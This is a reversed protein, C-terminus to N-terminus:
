DCSPNQRQSSSSTVSKSCSSGLSNVKFPIFWIKVNLEHTHNLWLGVIVIFWRLEDRFLGDLHMLILVWDFTPALKSWMAEANWKRPPRTTDASRCSHREQLGRPPSLLAGVSAVRRDHTKGCLSSKHRSDFESSTGTLDPLKSVASVFCFFFFVRCTHGSLTARVRAPLCRCAASWRCIVCSRRLRLKAACQETNRQLDSSFYSALNVTFGGHFCVPERTRRWSSSMPQFCRVFIVYVNNFGSLFFLCQFSYKQGIGQVRTSVVTDSEITASSYYCRQRFTSSHTGRM